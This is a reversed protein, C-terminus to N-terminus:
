TDLGGVSEVFGPDLVTLELRLPQVGIGKEWMWAALEPATIVRTDPPLADEAMDGGAIVLCSACGRAELDAELARPELTTKRPVIAVLTRSEEDEADSEEIVLRALGKAPALAAALRHGETELYMRAVTELARAGLNGLWLELHRRSEREVSVAAERIAREAAAVAEPLRAGQLQYRADGRVAFRSARGLARVDMLIASTLAREIESLEGGLVGRAALAEALQRIHQARGETRGLAEAAADLLAKSGAAESGSGAEQGGPVWEM